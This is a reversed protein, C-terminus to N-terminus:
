GTVTLSFGTPTNDPTVTVQVAAPVAFPQGTNPGETELVDSGDSNVLVSPTVNAVGAAVPTLAATFLGPTAGAVSAAVTLVTPTDSTAEPAVPSGTVSDNPGAVADGASNTYQFDALGDTTNITFTAMRMGGVINFTLQTAVDQPCPHRKRWWRYLWTIEEDLEQLYEEEEEGAEEIERVISDILYKVYEHSRHRRTM